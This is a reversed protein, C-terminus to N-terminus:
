TRRRRREDQRDEHQGFNTIKKLDRFALSGSGSASAARSARREDRLHHHAIRAADDGHTAPKMAMRREGLPRALSSASARCTGTRPSRMWAATRSRTQRTSTRSSGPRRRGARPRQGDGRVRRVVGDVVVRDLVDALLHHLALPEGPWQGLGPRNGPRRALHEPDALLGAREVLLELDGGLVVATLEVLLTLRKVLRKSGATMMKMPTTTPKTATARIEAM